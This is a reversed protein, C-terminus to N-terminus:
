EKVIELYCRCNPHTYPKDNENFRLGNLKSCIECVKEDKQSRWVLYYYDDEDDENLKKCEEITAKRIELTGINDYLKIMKKNNKDINKELIRYRDNIQKQANEYGDNMVLDEYYNFVQAFNTLDAYYYKVIYSAAINRLDYGYYDSIVDKFDIDSYYHKLIDKFFDDNSYGILLLYLTKLFYYDKLTKCTFRIGTNDFIFPIFKNNAEKIKEKTM